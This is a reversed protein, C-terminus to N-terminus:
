DFFSYVTNGQYETNTLGTAAVRRIGQDLWNVAEPTTWDDGMRNTDVEAMFPAKGTSTKPTILYYVVENRQDYSDYNAVWSHDEAYLIPWEFAM